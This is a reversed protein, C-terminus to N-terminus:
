LETLLNQTGMRSGSEARMFMVGGEVKPWHLTTITYVCEHLVREWHPETRVSDNNLTMQSLSASAFARDRICAAM